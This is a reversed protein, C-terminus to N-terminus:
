NEAQSILGPEWIIRFVCWSKQTPLPAERLWDSAKPPSWHLEQSPFYLARNSQERRPFRSKSVYWCGGKRYACITKFWPLVGSQSLEGPCTESLLWKGLPGSQRRSHVLFYFALSHRSPWDEPIDEGPGSGEWETKHIIGFLLSRGHSTTLPLMTTGLSGTKGQLQPRWWTSVCVLTRPTIIFPAEKRDKASFWVLAFRWTPNKTKASAKTVKDRWEWTEQAWKVLHGPQLSVHQAM